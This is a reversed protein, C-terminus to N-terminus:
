HQGGGGVWLRLPVRKQVVWDPLFIGRLLLPLGNRAWECLSEVTGQKLTGINEDGGEPVKRM